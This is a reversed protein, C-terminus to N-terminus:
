TPQEHWVGMEQEQMQRVLMGALVQTVEQQKEEPIQEWAPTQWGTAIENGQSKKNWNQGPRSEGPRAKM